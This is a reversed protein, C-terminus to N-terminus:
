FILPRHADRAVASLVAAYRDAIQRRLGAPNRAESSRAAATTCITSRGHYARVATAARFNSPRRVIAGPRLLCFDSQM